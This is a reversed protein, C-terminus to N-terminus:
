GRHRQVRQAEDYAANIRKTMEQATNQIEPGLQAVKDPHYKGMQARYAQTIESMAATPSVGLVEHWPKGSDSDAKGPSKTQETDPSSSADAASRRGPWVASVAWYGVFFFVIAALIEYSGM